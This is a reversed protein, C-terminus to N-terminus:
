KWAKERLDDLNIDRDEWMGAFEQFMKDKTTKKELLNQKIVEIYDLTKIFNLFDDVMNKNKIDLTVLM